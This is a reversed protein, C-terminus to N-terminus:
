RRLRGTVLAMVSTVEAIRMVRALVLFVTVDVLGTVGLVVASQVQGGERPWVQQLGYKVAWAVATAAGAAILLRVLFRLLRPTQLGGLVRRLLSYSILAGVLYAGAYAVVLGPATGRPSVARTLAVALVINTAAIV